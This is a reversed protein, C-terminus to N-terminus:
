RGDFLSGHLYVPHLLFHSEYYKTFRMVYCLSYRGSEDTGSLCILLEPSTNGHGINVTQTSIVTKHPLVPKADVAGTLYKRCGYVFNMLLGRGGCLM